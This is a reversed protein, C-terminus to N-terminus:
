KRVSMWVDRDGLFTAPKVVSIHMLLVDPLPDILEHAYVIM